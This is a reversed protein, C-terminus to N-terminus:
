DAMSPRRRGNKKKTPHPLIVAAAGELTQIVWDSVRMGELAAAAKIRRHNEVPM